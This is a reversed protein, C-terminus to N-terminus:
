REYDGVFEIGVPGFYFDVLGDTIRTEAILISVARVRNAAEEILHPLDTSDAAGHEDGGCGLLPINRFFFTSGLRSKNNVFSAGAFETVAIECRGGRFKGDGFFIADRELIARLPAVDAFVVGQEIEGVDNGAFGDETHIGGHGAHDVGGDFMRGHQSLFYLGVVVLVRELDGADLLCQGNRRELRRAM